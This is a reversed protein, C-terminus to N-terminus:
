YREPFTRSFQVSFQSGLSGVLSSTEVHYIILERKGGLENIKTAVVDAEQRGGASGVGVLVGVETLYGLLQLWGSALEETWNRPIPM